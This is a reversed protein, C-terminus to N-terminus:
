KRLRKTVHLLQIKNKPIFYLQKEFIKPFNLISKKM